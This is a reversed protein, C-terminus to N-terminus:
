AMGTPTKQNKFPFFKELVLGGAAAFFIKFSTGPAQGESIRDSVNLFISKLIFIRFNKPSAPGNCPEKGGWVGRKKRGFLFSGYSNISPSLCWPCAIKRRPIRSFCSTVWSFIEYSKFPKITIKYEIKVRSTRFLRFALEPATPKKVEKAQTKFTGGAWWQLKKQHGM